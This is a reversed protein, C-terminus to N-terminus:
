WIIAVLFSSVYVCYAFAGSVLAGKQGLTQVVGTAGVLASLTYCLYLTGNSYGGLSSGLETSALALVTTVCAHNTSFCFTMVWFSNRISTSRSRLGNESLCNDDSSTTLPELLTGQVTSHSSSQQVGM